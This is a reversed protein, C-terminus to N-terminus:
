IGIWNKPFIDPTHTNFWKAPYVVIPNSNVNLMAGWYSFSSNAIVAAKCHSMLFMDLYSNKGTNNNVFFSNPVSLNEKVWDIDNSFVFFKADHIKNQIIQIGQKYYDLTCIGGYQAVHEPAIYDGRRVHLCVSNSNNIENLLEFNVTDLNFNRYRLDKLNDLFFKKDQWWGDFFLASESYFDDTCKLFKLGLGNLKRCFLAVTKSFFTQKPLKIDFVRQVELGNHNKLNNCNYYGYVNQDPYKVMLYRSYLYFFIQNGLGSRFNVIKM